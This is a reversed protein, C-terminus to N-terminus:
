FTRDFMDTLVGGFLWRGSNIEDFSKRRELPVRQFDFFSFLEDRSAKLDENLTLNTESPQRM